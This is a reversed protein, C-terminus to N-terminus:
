DERDKLVRTNSIRDHIGNRMFLYSLRDFPILRGVTRLILESLEPKRGDSMTVTTKTIFKALTKQYKFEMWTYYLFVVSLYSAIAVLNLASEDMLPLFWVLGTNFIFLIFLCALQDIILHFFRTLSSAQNYYAKKEKLEAEQLDERFKEIQALEIQRKQVEEEAALVADAQYDERKVTVIEILEADSRQSMVESFNEKM